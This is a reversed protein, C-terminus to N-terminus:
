GYAMIIGHASLGDASVRLDQTDQTHENATTLNQMQDGRKHNVGRREKQSAVACQSTHKSPAKNGNHDLFRENKEHKCKHAQSSKQLVLALALLLILLLLWLLLPLLLDDVIECIGNAVGLLILLDQM